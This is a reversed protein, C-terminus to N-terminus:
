GILEKTNKILYIINNILGNSSTQQHWGSRLAHALVLDSEQEGPSWFFLNRIAAL